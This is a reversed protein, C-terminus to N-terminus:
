SMSGQTVRYVEAATGGLVLAQEELPLFGTHRRALEVHQRYSAVAYLAPVDTGWMLKHAGIRATAIRLYREVSPYPYGEESVAGPLASTDFWVNPLLGLALQEHWASWLKPDAEAARNVQGLHAIVIKLAPQLEAIRRVAATQYSANGIDGLDFALTLARDVLAQWLWDLGPEDLRAGPHLNCLGYSASIELKVACFRRDAAIVREFHARAGPLWPDFYAAGLFRDPHGDVARLVVDNQDGYFPGQLLVTREVGAWDMMRVMMEATHCTRENFPPILQFEAAGIAARGYGTGRIPGRASQGRFEDFIHAHADILMIAM